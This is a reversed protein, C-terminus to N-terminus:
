AQESSMLVSDEREVVAQFESLSSYVNGDHDNATGDPRLIGVEDRYEKRGEVIPYAGTPYVQWAVIPLHSWERKGDNIPAILQYFGAAASVIPTLVEEFDENSPEGIIVEETSMEFRATGNRLKSYSVIHDVNVRVGSELRIFSM